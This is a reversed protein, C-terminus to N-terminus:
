KGVAVLDATKFSHAVLLECTYTTAVIPDVQKIILNYENGSISIEYRDAYAPYVSTNPTQFIRVPTAPTTEDYISWVLADTVWTASCNLQEVTGILAATNTPGATLTGYCALICIKQWNFFM